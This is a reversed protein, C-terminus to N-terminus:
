STKPLLTMPLENGVYPLELIWLGDAEGYRFETQQRMLPMQVQEHPTIWFM